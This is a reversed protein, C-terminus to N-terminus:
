IGKALNLAKQSQKASAALCGFCRETVRNSWMGNFEGRGM